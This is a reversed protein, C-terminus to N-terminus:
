PNSYGFLPFLILRPGCKKATTEDPGLRGDHVKRVERETKGIEKFCYMYISLIGLSHSLPLVLLESLRCCFVPKDLKWFPNFKFTEV